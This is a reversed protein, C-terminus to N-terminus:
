RGRVKVNMRENGNWDNDGEGDGSDNERIMKMM